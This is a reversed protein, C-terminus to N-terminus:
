GMMLIAIAVLWFPHMITSQPNNIALIHMQATIIRDEDEVAIAIRDEMTLRIPVDYFGSLRMLPAITIFKVLGESIKGLRLYRRFDNKIRLLDEQEFDTLPELNLFDTFSGDSLEELKLFRHVDNLSLSSAEVTLAM